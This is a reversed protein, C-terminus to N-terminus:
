DLIIESRTINSFTFLYNHYNEINFHGVDSKQKRITLYVFLILYLCSYLLNIQSAM